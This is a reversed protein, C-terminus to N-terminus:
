FTLYQSSNPVHEGSSQEDRDTTIIHYRRQRKAPRPPSQEESNGTIPNTSREETIIRGISAKGKRRTSSDTPNAPARPPSKKTPKAEAEALAEAKRKSANSTELIDPQAKPSQPNGGPIILRSDVLAASHTGASIEAEVPVLFVFHFAIEDAYKELCELILLTNFAFLVALCEASTQLGTSLIVWAPGMTEESVDGKGDRPCNSPDGVSFALCCRLDNISIVLSTEIM